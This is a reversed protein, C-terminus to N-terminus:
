RGTPELRGDLAGEPSPGGREPEERRRQAITMAAAIKTTSHPM